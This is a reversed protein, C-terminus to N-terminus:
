RSQVELSQPRSNQLSSSGEGVGSAMGSARSSGAVHSIRWGRLRGGANNFDEDACAAEGGFDQKVAEEFGELPKKLASIGEGGDLGTTSAVCRRDTDTEQM